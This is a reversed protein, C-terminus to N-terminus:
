GEFGRVEHLPVMKLIGGPSSVCAMPADVMVALPYATTDPVKMVLLGHLLVSSALGNEGKHIYKM